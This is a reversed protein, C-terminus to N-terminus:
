HTLKLQDQNHEAIQRAFEDVLTMTETEMYIKNATPLKNLIRMAQFFAKELKESKPKAVILYIKFKEQSDSVSTIHGLFNRAKDRVNEAESLDFSLPEICHWIGNKWASKFKVSDDASEVTKEKFLDELNRKNLEAKFLKLIDADTLNSRHTDKVYQTVYRSFLDDLTKQLNVTLGFSVNSWVLASDDKPTVSSLITELNTNSKFLPLNDDDSSIETFKKEIVKLLNRFNQTGLNPFLKSVRSTSNSLKVKFFDNEECHVAVGINVFESTAVDHVYRLITYSYKLRNKM